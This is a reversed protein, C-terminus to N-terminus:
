DGRTYNRDEHMQLLLDKNVGESITENQIVM